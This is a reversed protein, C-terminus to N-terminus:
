GHRRFLGQYDPYSVQEQVGARLQWIVALRGSDPYPLPRGLVGYVVAFAAVNGLIALTTLVISGLTFLPSLRLARAAYRLDGFWGTWLWQVTRRRTREPPPVHAWAQLERWAIEDAETGTLGENRARIWRDGVHQAIEEVVDADARPLIRRVERRWRHPDYQAAGNTSM